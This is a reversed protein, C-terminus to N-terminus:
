GIIVARRVLSYGAQSLRLWYMGPPTCGCEGLRIVHRGPGLSGLDRAM